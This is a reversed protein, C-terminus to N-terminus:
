SKCREKRLEIIRIIRSLIVSIILMAFGIPVSIAVFGLSYGLTNSKIKVNLEYFQILYPMLYCSVGIIVLDFVTDLVFQLWVPFKSTVLNMSVNNRTYQNYSFALMTIWIYSYRAIEESWTLPSNFAWRMIVQTFLTIFIVCLFFCMLVLNIQKLLKALKQTM